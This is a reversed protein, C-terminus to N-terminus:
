LETTRDKSEEKKVTNLPQEDFVGVLLNYMRRRLPNSTARKRPSISITNKVTSKVVKTKKVPTKAKVTKAKAATKTKVEVPKANNQKSSKVDYVFFLVVTSLVFGAVSALANFLEKHVNYPKDALSANDVVSINKLDYIDKVEDRFSSVVGEVLKKSTDASKTAISVKIVETGKDNTATIAGALEEYPMVHNEDKLAPELVRRSKLLEIFNNILTTNQTAKAGDTNVFLLTADSKYLPVQIYTNFIFGALAGIATLSIIFPWKKVYFKLLHYLNIDQVTTEEEVTCVNVCFQM